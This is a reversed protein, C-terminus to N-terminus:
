LKLAEYAPLKILFTAGKGKGPSLAEVTGNHEDIIQYCISLGLGTGEGVDKTTFFPEFIRTLNEKEIGCGNDSIEIFVYKKDESAYTKIILRAGKKQKLAWRANNIIDLAVQQFRNKEMNVLPLNPSFEQIIKIKELKIENDVLFIVKELVENVMAPAFEGKDIRSFELLAKIVQKCHLASEEIVKIFEMLEAESLTKKSQLVLKILQINNLVGTLPNNIGHAVGGALLGIAAMKASQILQAQTNKLEHNVEVLYNQSQELDKTREKVSAELGDRERRLDEYAQKLRSAMDMFGTQLTGIEDSSKVDIKYDFNDSGLKKMGAVLGRIPKVIIKAIFFAVWLSLAILIFLVLIYSNRMTKALRDIKGLALSLASIDENRLDALAEELQRLSMPESFEGFSNKGLRSELEMQVTGAYCRFLSIIHAIGAKNEPENKVLERLEYLLQMIKSEYIDVYKKTEILQRYNQILYIRTYLNKLALVNREIETVLEVGTFNRLEIARSARNIQRTANIYYIGLGLFLILIWFYGFLIKNRVTFNNFKFRM